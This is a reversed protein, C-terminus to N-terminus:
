IGVGSKALPGLNDLPQAKTLHSRLIPNEGYICSVKNSNEIAWAYAEGAAGSAGELVPKTSFGQDILFKYLADWEQLVTVAPDRPRPATVIHFGKELLALDM